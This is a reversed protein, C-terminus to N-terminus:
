PLLIQLEGEKDFYVDSLLINRIINRKIMKEM